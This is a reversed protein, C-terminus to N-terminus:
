LYPGIKPINHVTGYGCDAFYIGVMMDLELFRNAPVEILLCWLTLLAELLLEDHVLVDPMAVILLLAEIRLAPNTEGFQLNDDNPSLSCCSSSSVSVPLLGL